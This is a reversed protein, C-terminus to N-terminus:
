IVELRRLVSKTWRSSRLQSFILFLVAVLWYGTFRLYHITIAFIGSQEASCRKALECPTYIVGPLIGDFVNQWPLLLVVMVLSLFFARSIHNIGGLRGILSVKLSFLMCLCYLVASLILLGNVFLITWSLHEFTVGFPFDSQQHPEEAPKNPQVVIEKAAEEVESPKDSPQKTKDTQLPVVLDKAPSPWIEPQKNKQLSEISPLAVEAKIEDGAKVCGTDVLWFSIQLVLLCLVIVIFLGNKWGRFVGVAELCDTTDLLNNQKAQNEDM